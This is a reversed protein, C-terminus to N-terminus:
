DQQLPLIGIVGSSEGTYIISNLDKDFILDRVREGVNYKEILNLSKNKLNYQYRILHQALPRNITDYGLTSVFFESYDNTHNIFKVESVAPNIMWYKIPEVFGHDSHSKYLPAGKVIRANDAYHSDNIVNQEGYHYGYNSIPWGFNNVINLDRNFNIEDGGYPGHETSVINDNIPDYDLGQPNRHGM